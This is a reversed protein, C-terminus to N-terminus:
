GLKKIFYVVLLGLSFLITLQSAVLSNFSILNNMIEKILILLTGLVLGLLFYLTKCKDKKFLWTILRSIIFVGAAAGIAFPILNLYQTKIEKVSTIIYEYLGLILLIFSGSVGPLFLAFIAFFGGIIVYIFSPNSVQSPTLFTIILGVCFGIFGAFINSNSHKTIDDYIIKSSALILGLFFSLLLAKYNELLFSILNSGLIIATFIGAFLIILFFIDLKNINKFFKKKNNISFLLELYNKPSINHIAKILREYIGTIFAITGGSIGPILDCIGMLLGKFYITLKENM